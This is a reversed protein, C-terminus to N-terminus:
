PKANSNGQGTLHYEESGTVLHRNVIFDDLVVSLRWHIHQRPINQFPLLDHWSYWDKFYADPIGPNEHKDIEQGHGYNHSNM